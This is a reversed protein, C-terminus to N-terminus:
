VLQTLSFRFRVRVRSVKVTVKPIAPRCGEKGSIVTINQGDATLMNAIDARSQPSQTSYQDLFHSELFEGFVFHVAVRLRGARFLAIIDTDGVYKSLTSM